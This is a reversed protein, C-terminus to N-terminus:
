QQHQKPDPVFRLYPKVRDIDQFLRDAEDDQVDFRVIARDGAKWDAPLAIKYADTRQLADLARLIEDFNRGVAAPYSITLRIRRHPDLVFVTRIPLAPTATGQATVEDLMGYLSSVKLDVDAIVPYFVSHGSGAFENVDGMWASHVNVSDTSLALVRCNREEWAEKLQAVRALETTCVPTFDAPHSFLIVWSDACFDSFKIKHEFAANNAEAPFFCAAEFDPALDGLRLSVM